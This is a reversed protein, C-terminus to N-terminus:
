HRDAPPLPRAPVGAMTLGDSVNAVVAAGAGITVEAGIRVGHRVNAGIGIWSAEGVVVGGGLHAGPSVHVGDALICDHDVTAATNVICGTGVIAFAQLIAGAFVVSGPGVKAYRSVIAAPHIVTVLTGGAATVARQKELRTRNHGIAIVVGDFAGLSRLLDATTGVVPWAGITAIEPWRDDFFTVEQWGVRQAADCVVKGHGSAGLLALRKM